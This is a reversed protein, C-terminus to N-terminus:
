RPTPPGPQHLTKPVVHGAHATGGGRCNRRLLPPTFMTFTPNGTTDLLVDGERDGVRVGVREGTLLDGLGEGELAGVGVADGLGTSFTRASRRQRVHPIGWGWGWSELRLRVWGRHGKQLTCPQERHTTRASAPCPCSSNQLASAQTGWEGHAALPASRSRSWHGRDGRQLACWGTVAGNNCQKEDCERKEQGGEWGWVGFRKGGEVPNSCHMPLGGVMIFDLVDGGCVNM